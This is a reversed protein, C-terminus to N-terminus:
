LWAECSRRVCWSCITTSLFAMDIRGAVLDPMALALSPYPVHRINIRAMSKVLEVALHNSTGVGGSGFHSIARDRALAILDQVTKAPVDNHVALVIPASYVISISGLGQDSRKIPDFPMLNIVIPAAATM